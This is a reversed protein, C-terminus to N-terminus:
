GGYKKGCHAVHNMGDSLCTYFKKDDGKARKCDNVSMKSKIKKLAGSQKDYEAKSMYGDKYNKRGVQLMSDIGDRGYSVAQGCDLEDSSSQESLLAEAMGDAAKQTDPDLSKVAGTKAGGSVNVTEANQNTPPKQGFHTVGEEDVWKYVEASVTISFIMMLNESLTM